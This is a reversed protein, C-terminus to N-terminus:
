AGFLEALIGSVKEAGAASLHDTDMFDAPTFLGEAQNFDVFHVDEPVADLLELVGARMDPLIFRNYEPSFPTIVVIPQVDHRYLFRVFETLIQKNEELSDRHQLLVAAIDEGGVVGDGIGHAKLIHATNDLGHFLDPTITLM